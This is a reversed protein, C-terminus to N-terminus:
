LVKGLSFFLIANHKLLTRNLSQGLVQEEGSSSDVKRKIRIQGSDSIILIILSPEPLGLNKANKADCKRTVRVQDSEQFNPNMGSEPQVWLQYNPNLDSLLQM